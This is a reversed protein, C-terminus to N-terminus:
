RRKRKPKKHAKVAEDAAKIERSKKHLKDLNHFIKLIKKKNLGHKAQLTRRMIRFEIKGKDLGRAHNLANYIDLDRKMKEIDEHSPVKLNMGGFVDLIKQTIEIGCIERFESILSKPFLLALKDLLSKM